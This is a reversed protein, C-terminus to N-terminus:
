RPQYMSVFEIVTIVELQLTEYLRWLQTLEAEDSFHLSCNLLHVTSYLPFCPTFSMIM